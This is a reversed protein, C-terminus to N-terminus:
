FRSCRPVEALPDLGHRPQYLWLRYREALREPTDDPFRSGLSLWMMERGLDNLEMASKLRGAVAHESQDLAIPPQM